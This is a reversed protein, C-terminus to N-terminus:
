EVAPEMLPRFSAAVQDIIASYHEVCCSDMYFILLYMRDGTLVTYVIYEMEVQAVGIALMMHFRAAEGAPLEVVESNIIDAGQSKFQQEFVNVGFQASQPMGNADVHLMFLGSKGGFEAMVLDCAGDGCMTKLTQVGEESGEGLFEMVVALYKEDYLFETVDIWTSPTELSYGAGSHATWDRTAEAAGAEAANDGSSSAQPASDESADRGAAPVPAALSSHVFVDVGDADVRLWEDSGLVVEGPTVEIVSLPDGPAFTRVVPCSLWPCSRANITQEGTVTYPTPADQAFVATGTVGCLTVMLIVSMILRSM